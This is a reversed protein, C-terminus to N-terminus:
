NAGSKPGNTVRQVSNTGSSPEGCSVIRTKNVGAGILQVGEPLLIEKNTYYVRAELQVRAYPQNMDCIEPSCKEAETLHRCVDSLGPIAVDDDSKLFGTEHLRTNNSFSGIGDNEMMSSPKVSVLWYDSEGKAVTPAGGLSVRQGKTYNRVESPPLQTSHAFSRKLVSDDETAVIM